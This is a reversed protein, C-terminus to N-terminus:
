NHDRNVLLVLISLKNLGSVLLGREHPADHSEIVVIVVLVIVIHKHLLWFGDELPLHDSFSQIILSDEVLGGGLLTRRLERFSVESFERGLRVLM